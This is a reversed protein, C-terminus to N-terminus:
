VFAIKGGLEDLNIEQYANMTSSLLFLVVRKVHNWSKLNLEGVQLTIGWALAM